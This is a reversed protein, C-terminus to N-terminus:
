KTCPDPMVGVTGGSAVGGKAAEGGEIEPTNQGIMAAECFGPVVSRGLFSIGGLAAMSILVLLLAYQFIAAGRASRSQRCLRKVLTETWTRTPSAAETHKQNTSPKVLLCQNNSPIQENLRPCDTKSM